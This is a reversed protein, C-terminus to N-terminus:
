IHQRCNNSFHILPYLISMTGIVPTDNRFIVNSLVDIATTMALAYKLVTAIKNKVFSIAKGSLSDPDCHRFYFSLLPM